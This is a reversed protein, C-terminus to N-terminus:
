IGGRLTWRFVCGCVYDSGNVEVQSWGDVSGLVRLWWVFDVSLRRVMAGCSFV